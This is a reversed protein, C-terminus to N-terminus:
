RRVIPAEGGGFGGTARATKETCFFGDTEKEEAAGSKAYLFFISPLNQGM